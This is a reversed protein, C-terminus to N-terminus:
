EAPEPKPTSKQNEVTPRVPIIFDDKNKKKSMSTLCQSKAGADAPVASAFNGYYGRDYATTLLTDFTNDNKNWEKVEYGNWGQLCYLNNNATACSVDYPNYNGYGLDPMWLDDVGVVLTETPGTGGTSVLVLNDDYDYYGSCGAYVTAYNLPPLEEVFGYENYRTVKNSPYYSGGGYGYGYGDDSGYGETDNGYGSCMNNQYGGIIIVSDSKKDPVACAYSTEYALEFGDVSSGDPLLKTSTCPSAYGGILYLGSYTKWAVHNIRPPDSWTNTVNWVGPYPASPDFKECNLLPYGTELDVGGCIKFGTTTSSSRQYNSPTIDCFTNSIPDYYSETRYDQSTIGGAIFIAQGGKSVCEPPYIGSKFCVYSGPSDYVEYICDNLCQPDPYLGPKNTLIYTIDNVIKKQCCYYSQVLEGKIATLFLLLKLKTNVNLM